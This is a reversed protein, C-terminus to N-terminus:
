WRTGGVANWSPIIDSEDDDDRKAENPQAEVYEGAEKWELYGIRVTLADLADFYCNACWIPPPFTDRSLRTFVIATRYAGIDEAAFSARICIHYANFPSILWMCLISAILISKIHVLSWAAVTSGTIRLRQLIWMGRGNSSMLILGIGALMMDFTTRDSIGYTHTSFLQGCVRVIFVFLLLGVALWIAPKSIALLLKSPVVALVAIVLLLVVFQIQWIPWWGCMKILSHLVSALSPGLGICLLFVGLITLGIQGITERQEVASEQSPRQCDSESM